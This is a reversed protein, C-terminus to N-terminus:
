RRVDSAAAGLLARAACLLTRDASTELAVAMPVLEENPHAAVVDVDWQDETRALVLVQRRGDTGL